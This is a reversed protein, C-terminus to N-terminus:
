PTIEFVVGAGHAGYYATLGYINGAADLVLGEPQGGNSGGKFRHVITEKWSGDPNPTLKFVVGYGGADDWYTTGYLNGAKDFKIWLPDHGNRGNFTHIVKYTWKGGSAPTLKYITGADQTGGASTTGYLNGAADLIPAFQPVKAPHGWFAHLVREKWGSRSKPTLEFTVGYGSAGGNMAASYLNGAADFTLGCDRLLYGGDKGGTFSYIVSQAWSGDPNPTLTYVTGYGYTGGYWTTGYLTGATDFALTYPQNGDAGGTFSYLVSQTWSGDPNPTLQYVTGNGSAGGYMTTGYLNGAPDFVPTSWPEYGDGGTFSYLVTETWSGDANPTMKFVTGLGYAGGWATTGYLSGAQDLVLSARPEQGDSGTFAHLVRYKSAAGAGPALILTVILTVTAVAFDKSATAWIGKSNM